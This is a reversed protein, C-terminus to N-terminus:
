STLVAWRAYLRDVDAQAKALEQTLEGLKVANSAYEPRSSESTLRELKEEAVLIAAEMGDLERQDNYSLRRKPGANAQAPGSSAPALAARAGGKGLASTQAEHWAEWQSLDACPTLKGSGDFPFALIQTAVQDLFYRDHTVLIVAGPFDTLCDQLVNLTELDLDNTPEDLVLLNAEQLMLKALLVRSQEGGSLKGVAMEAQEPAFLFRDLYGRVHVPAGRYTVHDGTPCITRFLTKAPDLSERSQEFYAVQLQDSRFVEGSDPREQGLLVRILTSKGCGNPGMLGIRTGPGFRLDLGRFLTKKGYSKSISKAELLKKPSRDTGQFDLKATRTRNRYELEGVEESLEGHRTIRAQQKTTRAKAGRRLWETERRLTNKLSKERSEQAQIMSEKTELYKAYDGNV